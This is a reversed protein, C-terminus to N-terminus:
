LFTCMYIIFLRNIYKQLKVGGIYQTVRYIHAYIYNTKNDLIRILVTLPDNKVSKHM